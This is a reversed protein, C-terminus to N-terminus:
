KNIEIKKEQLLITKSILEACESQGISGFHVPDVFRQDNTGKFIDSFDSFKESIEKDQKLGLLLYNYYENCFISYDFNQYKTKSVYNIIKKDLKTKNTSAFLMPQLIFHYNSNNIESLKNIMKLNNIVRHTLLSAIQKPTQAVFRMKPKFLKNKSYKKFFILPYIFIFLIFSFKSYFSFGLFNFYKYKDCNDFNTKKKNKLNFFKVMVSLPFMIIILIFKMYLHLFFM